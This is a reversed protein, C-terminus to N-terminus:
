KAIFDESAIQWYAKGILSDSGTYTGNHILYKMSKTDFVQFISKSKFGFGEHYSFLAYGMYNANFIDKSYIFSNDNKDIQNLLTTAIDMQSCYKDVVMNSKQLAGGLWLMPIRYRNLNDPSKNGPKVTAHDAVLIILTNNWWAQKKAQAIFNGLCKDAYHAASYFPAEIGATDFQKYPAVAYPEHNSLTMIYTFFPTKSQQMADIGKKLVHEDHVGWKFTHLSKDFNSEDIVTNFEGTTILSNMNSFQKNGGYVFISNYGYHTLKKSITPLKEVKSSFGIIPNNSQAPYGSLIAVLGKDTRTGAALMNSFFIGERVLSDFQPTVGKKNGLSYTIDAGFSEMMIIIINPNKTKLVYETQCSSKSFKTYISQAKKSEMFHASNDLSSMQTMSSLFNWIPNVAIHNATLNKSFYVAGTNMSAVDVGGRAPIFLFSGMCILAIPSYWKKHSPKKLQNNVLKLFLFIAVFSMVLWLGILVILLSNSTSSLASFSKDFFLFVSVDLHSLWNKYLELDSIILLTCLPILIFHLIATAKRFVHENVFLLLTLICVFMTVYCAWSVDLKLGYLFAKSIDLASVQSTINWQYIVFLLKNTISFVIWFLLISFIFKIYRLM